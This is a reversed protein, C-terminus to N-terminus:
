RPSGCNPCSPGSHVQGIRARAAVALMLLAPGAVSVTLATAALAAWDPNRGVAGQALERLALLGLPTALILLAWGGRFDRRRALDLAVMLTVVLLVAGAALPTSVAEFSLYGAFFNGNEFLRAAVAAALASVPLLAMRAALPPREPMGLAIVGLALQPALVFLPPRNLGTLPSVPVVLATLLVAAWLLHRAYRRTSLTYGAAAVLWAAWAVAAISIFPGVPQLGMEPAPRRLELVSWVSALATAALFALVAALRIGPILDDAGAARLRQRLGGRVLDAADALSPWRRDPGALDLYTGVIEAGRLRRYDAPYARLLRLYRRELDSM